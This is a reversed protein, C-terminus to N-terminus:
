TFLNKLWNILLAFLSKKGSSPVDASKEKDGSAPIATAPERKEPTKNKSQDGSKQKTTDSTGHFSHMSDGDPTSVGTSFSLPRDAPDRHKKLLAIREEPKIVPTSDAMGKKNKIVPSTYIEQKRDRKEIFVESTFPQNTDQTSGRNHHSPIDSTFIGSKEDRQDYRKKDVKWPDISVGKRKGDSGRKEPFSEESPGSIEAKTEVKPIIDVTDPEESDEEAAITEVTSLNRKKRRKFLSSIFSVFEKVKKFRTGPEKKGHLNDLEEMASVEEATGFPNENYSSKYAGGIREEISDELISHEPSQSIFLTLLEEISNFSEPNETMKRNLDILWEPLDGQFQMSNSSTFHGGTLMEFLIVGSSYVDNRTNSEFYGATGFDKPFYRSYEKKFTEMGKGTCSLLIHDLFGSIKINTIEPGTETLWVSEPNLLNHHIGKKELQKLGRLINIIIKLAIGFPFKIGNDILTRLTINKLELYALYFHDEHIGLEFPKYLYPTQIDYIKYFSSRVHDFDAEKITSLSKKFFYLIFLNASYISTAEWKEYFADEETKEKISYVRSIFQGQLEM